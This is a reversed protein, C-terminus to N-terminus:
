HGTAPPIPKGPRTSDALAPPCARFRRAAAAMRAEAPNSAGHHIAVGAPAPDPTPQVPLVQETSSLLRIVSLPSTPAAGPWTWSGTAGGGQKHCGTPSVAAPLMRMM